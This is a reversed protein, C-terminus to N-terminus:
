GDLVVEAPHVSRRAERALVAAGPLTAGLALMGYATATAVGTAAGLGMAAFTWAAVGERPGWGGVSLPISMAVQAIIALVLLDHYPAPSGVSRAAVLFIATHGAVVVFSALLVRPWVGRALLAFKMGRAALVVVMLAVTSGVALVTPLVAHLPSPFIVILLVAIAAQVIQGAAREYAVARVGRGVDGADRGHLVARHVDGLVGGPLVSNLFQSRYYAPVAERVTLTLGLGRAVVSWRWAAAVTSVGTLLAAGLLGLPSVSRLGDVFPGTGLRLVIAALVAGAGGIRVARWLTPYAAPATM